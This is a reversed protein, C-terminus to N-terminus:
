NNSTIVEANIKLLMVPNVANSYVTVTKTQIGNYGSTNFVVELKGSGGPPIPKTDYKPVTCGCTTSARKIVLDGSGTNNFQFICGIKEGEIVKGFNHEVETFSLVAKTSDSVSLSNGASQRNGSNGCGTLLILIIFIIISGSSRM